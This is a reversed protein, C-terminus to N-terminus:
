EDGGLAMYADTFRTLMPESLQKDGPRRWAKIQVLVPINNIPRKLSIKISIRVNENLFICKFIDDALIAAMNGPPSSNFRQKDVSRTLGNKAGSPPSTHLLYPSALRMESQFQFAEIRYIVPPTRNLPFISRLYQVRKWKWEDNHSCQIWGRVKTDTVAYIIICYGLLCM